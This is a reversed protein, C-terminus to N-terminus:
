KIGLAKLRKQLEVTMKEFGPKKLLAFMNKKYAEVGPQDFPNVRLLYGSIAIAKEFFYFLQGLTEESRDELMITAAPVGGDVHALVTGLYAQKNVEEFTKGALYNLEDSNNQFKPIKVSARSKKIYMFTEFVNRLGEQMWQGLSHLDTTYDVSAPFIGGQDKGESEGALQKWWECIFHLSPQCGALVEMNKGQRLLVNRIAAYRAAINKDIDPGSCLTMSERAGAALADINIGAVAIPFLGVPSLVSFRGGIDPAIPFTAYGEADALSRLAGKKPDTTAIIRKAAGSKGYKKEMFQRLIRFTIGPETTTGSKSIVNISVNRESVLDLLDHLYDSNVQHGAFIVRPSRCDDFGTSLFEIAARAGLYSGGIGVAILVDSMGRIEDAKDKIATFEKKSISAPLNLWGLFDSGPGKKSMLLQEANGVDRRFSNLKKEDVWGNVFRDDYSIKQM